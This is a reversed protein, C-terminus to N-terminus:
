IKRKKVVKVDARLEVRGPFIERSTFCSPNSASWEGGNLALTLFPQAISSIEWIGEHCTTM